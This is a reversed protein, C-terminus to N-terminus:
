NAKEMVLNQFYPSLIMEDNRKRPHHFHCLTIGNKVEYRLEPHAKWGLIHHAVLKGSCEQNFIRCKWGDRNRVERRWDKNAVDNREQKQLLTRDKIYLYHAEGANKGKGSVSMKEKAEDSHKKGLMPSVRGMAIKSMKARVEMSFPKGKNWPTTGKRSPPKIGKAKLTQSIKIKQSQSLHEM